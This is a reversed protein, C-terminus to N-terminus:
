VLRQCLNSDRKVNLGEVPRGEGRCFSRKHCYIARIYGESNNFPGGVGQKHSYNPRRGKQSTRICIDDGTAGDLAGSFEILPKLGTILIM